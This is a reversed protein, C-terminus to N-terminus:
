SDFVWDAERVYSGTEHPLGRLFTLIIIVRPPSPVLDISKAERDARTYLLTAWPFFTVVVKLIQDHAHHLEATHRGFALGPVYHVPLYWSREQSFVCLVITRM